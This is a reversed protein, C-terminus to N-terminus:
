YRSYQKEETISSKLLINIEQKLRGRADNNHYVARALRIFEADFSKAAEKDRIEDEIQWLRENVNKLESKLRAIEPHLSAAQQALGSLQALEHRVNALATESTLREQKIELITVKDILEGWSVLVSPNM